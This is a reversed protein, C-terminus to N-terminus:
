IGNEKREEKKSEVIERMLLVIFQTEERLLSLIEPDNAALMSRVTIDESVSRIGMKSCLRDVFKALTNTMASSKVKSTYEDYIKM